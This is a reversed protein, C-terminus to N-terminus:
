GGRERGGCIRSPQLILLSLETVKAALVALSTGCKSSSVKGGKGRLVYQSVGACMRCMSVGGVCIICTAHPGAAHPARARETHRAPWNRTAASHRTPGHCTHRAPRSRTAHPGAAHPTRARQTLRAPRSHTAHPGAAQPTRARKMLNQLLGEPPM